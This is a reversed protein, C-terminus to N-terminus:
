KLSTWKNVYQSYYFHDSEDRFGVFFMDEKEIYVGVNIEKFDLTAFLIKQNNLPKQLKPDIWNKCIERIENVQEEM